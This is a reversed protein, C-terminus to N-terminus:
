VSRGLPFVVPLGNDPHPMVGVPAGYAERILNPTLVASPAGQALIRGASLLILDDCFQAALNLDHFIAMASLQRDHVLHAILGLTEMQHNIDLHATPEDLLLIRPQQALARAIVVRQQEGGSLQGIFRDALHWIATDQMAQRAIQRDKEGERGTWSLYPTRGLLVMEWATFTAPLEPDQPVVALVRALDAGRWESLDRGNIRIKGQAPTLLRSLLRVLTSKGAGNPGIVGLMRGPELMLDIENLIPTGNYSFTIRRAELWSRGNGFRTQSVPVDTRRAALSRMLSDGVRRIGQRGMTDEKSESM